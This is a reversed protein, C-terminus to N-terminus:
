EPLEPAPRFTSRYQFARRRIEADIEDVTDICVVIYVPTERSQLKAIIARKRDHSLWEFNATVFVIHFPNTATTDPVNEEWNAEYGATTDPYLLHNSTCDKRLQLSLNECGPVTVTDSHQLSIIDPRHWVSTMTVGEGSNAAMMTELRQGLILRRAIQLDRLRGLKLEPSYEERLLSHPYRCYKAILDLQQVSWIGRYVQLAAHLPDVGAQTLAHTTENPLGSLAIYLGRGIEDSIVRGPPIVIQFQAALSRLCEPVEPEFGNEMSGPNRGVFHIEMSGTALYADGLCFVLAGRASSGEAFRHHDEALFLAVEFRRRIFRYVWAALIVDRSCYRRPIWLRAKKASRIDKSNAAFKEAYDRFVQLGVENHLAKM